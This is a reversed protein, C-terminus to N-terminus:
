RMALFGNFYMVLSLLVNRMHVCFGFFFGLFLKIIYDM